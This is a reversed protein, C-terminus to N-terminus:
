AKESSGVIDRAWTARAMARQRSAAAAAGARPTRPSRWALAEAMAEAEEVPPEAVALATAPADPGM